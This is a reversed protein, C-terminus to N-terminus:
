AYPFNDFFNTFTSYSVVLGNKFIDIKTKQRLEYFLLKLPRFNFSLIFKLVKCFSLFCKEMKLLEIFM